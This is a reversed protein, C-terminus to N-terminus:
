GNIIEVHDQCGARQESVNLEKDHLGCWWGGDVLPRVHQCSRCTIRMAYGKHCVAHFDCFKCQYWGPNESLRQPPTLATVVLNARHTQHTAHTADYQVLELHLHDDNKNVGGYLAWEMKMKHMYLQCQTYHKPKSQQVGKKVLDNFSKDNHTKWEGVFKVGPGLDPLDQGWGDCYGKVHPNSFTIEYQKGTAPDRSYFPIGATTLLQEFVDEERNGREFLRKIRPPFHPEAAWRFSYWLERSCPGGLRGAGLHTGREDDPVHQWAADIAAMTKTALIM